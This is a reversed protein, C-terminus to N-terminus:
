IRVKGIFSDVLVLIFIALSPLQRKGRQLPTVRCTTKRGARGTPYRSGTGHGIAVGAVYLLLASISCQPTIMKQTYPGDSLRYGSIIVKRVEPIQYLIQAKSDVRRM